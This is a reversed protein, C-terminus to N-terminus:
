YDFSEFSDIQNSSRRFSMPKNIPMKKQGRGFPLSSQFSSKHEDQMLFVIVLSSVASSSMQTSAISVLEHQCICRQIKNM